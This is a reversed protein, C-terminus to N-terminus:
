CYAETESSARVHPSMHQWSASLYTLYSHSDETSARYTSSVTDSLGAQWGAWIELLFAIGGVGM